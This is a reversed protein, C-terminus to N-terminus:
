QYCSYTNAPMYVLYCNSAILLMKYQLNWEVNYTKFLFVITFSHKLNVRPDQAQMYNEGAHHIVDAIDDTKRSIRALQDCSM